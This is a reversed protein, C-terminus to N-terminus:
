KSRPVQHYIWYQIGSLRSASDGAESGITVMLNGVILEEPGLARHGFFLLSDSVNSSAQQITVVLHWHSETGRITFSTDALKGANNSSWQAGGPQWPTFMRKFRVIRNTMGRQMMSVVRYINQVGAEHSSWIIHTDGWANCRNPKNAIKLDMNVLSDLQSTLRDSM